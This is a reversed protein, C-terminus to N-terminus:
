QVFYVQVFFWYADAPLTDLFDEFDIVSFGPRLVVVNQHCTLSFMEMFLFPRQKCILFKFKTLNTGESIGAQILLPSGIKAGPTYLLVIDHNVRESIPPSAFFHNPSTLTLM